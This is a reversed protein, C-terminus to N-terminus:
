RVPYEKIKKMPGPYEGWYYHSIGDRWLSALPSKTSAVLGEGYVGSLISGPSGEEDGVGGFKRWKGDNTQLAVTSCPMDFDLFAMGEFLLEDEGGRGNEKEIVRTMQKEMEAM